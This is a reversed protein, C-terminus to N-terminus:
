LEDSDPAKETIYSSPPVILLDMPAIGHAEFTHRKGCEACDEPKEPKAKFLHPRIGRGYRDPKM